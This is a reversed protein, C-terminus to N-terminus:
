HQPGRRVRRVLVYAGFGFCIVATAGAIVQSGQDLGRHGALYVLVWLGIGLAMVGMFTFPFRM